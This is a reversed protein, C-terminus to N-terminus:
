ASPCREPTTQTRVRQPDQPIRCYRIGAVTTCVLQFQFYMCRRRVPARQVLLSFRRLPASKFKPIWLTREHTATYASHLSGCPLPSTSGLSQQTFDDIKLPQSSLNNWNSEPAFFFLTSSYRTMSLVDDNFPPCMMLLLLELETRSACYAVGVVYCLNGCVRSRRSSM